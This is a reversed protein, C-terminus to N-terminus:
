RRQNAAAARNETIPYAEDIRDWADRTAPRAQDWNMTSGRDPWEAALQEEVDDFSKDRYRARSEWGYRYAPQIEDYTMGDPLYDADAYNDRWYAEEVTPDFEEGVAKGAYAGAIGGAIAGVAAGAPGAVAGGVAGAAAGGLATGTGVEVPHAGHEGSIPDENIDREVFETDKKKRAM